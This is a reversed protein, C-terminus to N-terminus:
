WDFDPDCNLEYPEYIIKTGMSDADWLEGRAIYMDKRDRIWRYERQGNELLDRASVPKTIM